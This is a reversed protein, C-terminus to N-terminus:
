SSRPYLISPPLPLPKSVLLVFRAANDDSILYSATPGEDPREWIVCEVCSNM